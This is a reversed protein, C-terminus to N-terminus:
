RYRSVGVAGADGSPDSQPRDDVVIAIDEFGQGLEQLV